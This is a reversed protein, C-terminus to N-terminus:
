VHARGIQTAASSFYLPVIQALGGISIALATLVGLVMASKEVKDHGM